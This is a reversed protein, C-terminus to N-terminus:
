EKKIILECNSYYEDTHVSLIYIGNQLVITPVKKLDFSLKNNGPSIRANYLTAICRGYLDHIEITIKSTNSSEPVTLELEIWDSVPNPYIKTDWETPSYTKGISYPNKWSGIIKNSEFKVKQQTDISGKNKDFLFISLPNSNLNHCYATICYVTKNELNCPLAEGVLSDGDYIRVSASEWQPYSTLDLEALITMNYQYDNFKSLSNKSAVKQTKMGLIWDATVYNITINSTGPSYLLFGQNPYLTTLSGIWLGLGAQYEAFESETKIITGDVFLTNAFANNIKQITRLPYGMWNWGPRIELSLGDGNIENGILKISTPKSLHMMYMTQASLQLSGPIWKDKDVSFSEFENQHVLRDTSEFHDEHAFVQNVNMNEASNNIHLSFWNWGSHMQIEQAVYGESNLIQPNAVSGIITNSKFEFKNDLEWYEECDSADWLRLHVEEGSSKDSHITLYVRYENVITDVVQITHKIFHEDVWVSDRPQGVVLDHTVNAKGRCEDGVFAGIMDYTDTSFHGLSKVQGILNMSYLFDSDEVIWNPEDCLVKINLTIPDDGEPTHLYLTTRHIGPDLEGKITIAVNESGGANLDGSLPEIQLYDTLPMNLQSVPSWVEGNFRYETNATGANHISTFITTDKGYPVALSMSNNNWHVPNRDVFLEFVIPKLTKNYYLDSIEDITLKLYCNEIFRNQVDPLVNITNNYCNYNFPVDLGTSENYLHIKDPTLLEAFLTESFQFQIIDNENLIQDVPSIEQILEPYSRDVIGTIENSVSQTGNTCVDVVRLKYQDNFVQMIDWQYMCFDEKLSDKWITDAVIWTNDGTLHQYEILLYDFASDYINYGTINIQLSSDKQNLMFDEVPLFIEIDNACPEIFHVSFNATDAIILPLRTEEWGEFECASSVMLQLNDYNYEVPGKDVTLTYELQQMAPINLPIVASSLVQGNLRIVAGYPNSENILRLYYIGDEDSESTNGVTINFNASEGNMVNLPDSIAEVQVQVNERKMTGIEWPCSSTGAVTKFVPTGYVPDICVDVSFYDNFKGADDDDLVYTTATSNEDTFSYSENEGQGLGIILSMKKENGGTASKFELTAKSDIDFSWNFSMTKSKSYEETHTLSTGSSFSVNRVFEADAKNITNQDIIQQWANASATDGILLLSPIVTNLIHTEAYIFQTEFGDPAMWLDISKKVDCGDLEIVDTLGYLMNMASGVYVDGDKGILQDADSTKFGNLFTMSRKFEKAGGLKYNIYSERVLSLSQESEIEVGIGTSQKLGFKMTSGTGLGFADYWDMNVVSSYSTKEILETFSKDGPPDHLILFPIEPLRTTFTKERPSHGEIIAWLTTSCEREDKGKANVTFYRAYPHEGGSLINPNGPILSYKLVPLSDGPEVPNYNSDNILYTAPNILQGIENSIVFEVENLYCKSNGYLEFAAIILKTEEFQKVHYDGCDTKSMGAVEVQMPAKYKFKVTDNGSRLDIQQANFNYTPDDATVTIEFYDAPLRSANVLGSKSSKFAISFNNDKNEIKVNFVTNLSYECDGGYIFGTLDHFTNDEFNKNAQPQMIIGTQRSLPIFDHNKKTPILTHETGPEFECLYHGKADTFVQPKLSITDWIGKDNLVVEKIEVSDVYYSLGKFNVYGSVSIQSDDTFDVENTTSASNSLTISKNAPVFSHYKKSPAITYATGFQEYFIGDILYNGSLDSYASLHMNPISESWKAGQIQTDFSNVTMDFSKTGVGEDFRWYAHLGNAYSEMVRHMNEIIQASDRATKWIRIDDLWGNFNYSSNWLSGIQLNVPCENHLHGSEKRVLISDMWVSITGKQYVYAFHHWENLGFAPIATSDSQSVYTGNSYILFSNNTDGSSNWKHIVIGSQNNVDTWSRIKSWFEITFEDRIFFDPDFSSCNLYDTDGNLDLSRGNYPSVVMEVGYVPNYHSSSIKGSIKGNPNVFGITSATEGKGFANEPVLSYNYMHGSYVDKDEYTNTEPGFKGLLVGDKYLYAKKNLPGDLVDTKWDVIVKDPHDGGSATIVTRQSSQSLFAFPGIDGKLINEPSEEKTEFVGTLPAGISIQQQYKYDDNSMFNNVSGGGGFLIETNTVSQSISNQFVFLGLFLISKKM